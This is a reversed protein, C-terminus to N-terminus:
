TILRPYIWSVILNASIKRFLNIKEQSHNFCTEESIDSYQCYFVKFLELVNKQPPCTVDDLNWSQFVAVDFNWSKIYDLFKYPCTKLDQDSTQYPANQQINRRSAGDETDPQTESYKHNSINKVHILICTIICIQIRM